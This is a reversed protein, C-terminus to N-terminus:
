GAAGKGMDYKKRLDTDTEALIPGLRKERDSTEMLADDLSTRLSRLKAHQTKLDKLNARAAREPSPDGRYGSVQARPM